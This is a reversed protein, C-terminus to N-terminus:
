SKNKNVFATVPSTWVMIYITPEKHWECETCQLREEGTDPCFAMDLASGCLPCDGYFSTSSM